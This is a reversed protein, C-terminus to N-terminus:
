PMSFEVEPDKVSLVPCHAKKVVKEATHGFLVHKIGTRGRTGIVILDVDERKSFQIIEFFPVGHLIYTDCHMDGPVMGTVMEDLRKAANEQFELYLQPLISPSLNYESFETFDQLVHILFLRAKFVKNLDIAYKLAHRSSESFDTPILIRKIM